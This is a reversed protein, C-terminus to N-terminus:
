PSLHRILEDDSINQQLLTALDSRAIVAKTYIYHIGNDSEEHEVTFDASDLSLDRITNRLNIIFSTDSYPSPNENALEQRAEEALRDIEFKLNQVASKRSYEAASASDAASAMAYGYVASSDSSAYLDNSYWEPVASVEVTEEPETETTAEPTACATFLIASIVIASFYRM